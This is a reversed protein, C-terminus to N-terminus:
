FITEMVKQSITCKKRKKVLSIKSAFVCHTSSKEKKCKSITPFDLELYTLLELNRVKLINEFFISIQQLEKHSLLSITIKKKGNEQKYLNFSHDFFQLFDSTFISKSFRRQM